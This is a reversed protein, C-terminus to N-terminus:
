HTKGMKVDEAAGNWQGAQGALMAAASQRSPSFLFQRSEGGEAVKQLTGGRRKAHGFHFIRTLLHLVVACM